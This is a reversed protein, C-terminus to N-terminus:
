QLRDIKEVSTSAPLLKGDWHPTASKATMGTLNYRHFLLKM